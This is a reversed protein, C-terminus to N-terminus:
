HDKMGQKTKPPIIAPIIVLREFTVNANNQRSGNSYLYKTFYARKEGTRHGTGLNSQSLTILPVVIQQSHYIKSM